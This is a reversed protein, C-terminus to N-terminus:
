HVNTMYRTYIYIYIYVYIYMYVNYMYIYVFVYVYALDWRNEGAARVVSRCICCVSDTVSVCFSVSVCVYVCTMEGNIASFLANSDLNSQGQLSQLGPM